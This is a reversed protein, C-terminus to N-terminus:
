GDMWGDMWGYSTEGKTYLGDFISVWREFSQWTRANLSYLPWNPLDTPPAVSLYGIFVSFVGIVAVIHITKIKKLFSIAIEKHNTKRQPTASPKPLSGKELITKTKGNREMTIQIYEHICVHIIYILNYMCVYKCVHVYVSMCLHVKYTLVYLAWMRIYTSSAAMYKRVVYICLYIHVYICVYMHVYTDVYMYICVYTCVCVYMCVYM